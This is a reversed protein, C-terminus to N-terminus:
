RGREAATSSRRTAPGKGFAAVAARIHAAMVATPAIQWGVMNSPWRSASCQADRCLSRASPLRHLQSLLAMERDIQESPIRTSLDLRGQLGHFCDARRASWWVAATFAATLTFLSVPKTM